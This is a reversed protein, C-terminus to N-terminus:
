DVELEAEEEKLIKEQMDFFSEYEKHTLFAAVFANLVAFGAIQGHIPRFMKRAIRLIEMPNETLGPLRFTYNRTALMFSSIPGLICPYLAGFGVQIAM